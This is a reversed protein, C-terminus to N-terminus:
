LSLRYRVEPVHGWVPETRETGDRTFGADEYFANARDNAVFSWLTAQEYGLDRLEDLAAGLLQRGVGRRWSSPNVFFTRVEGVGPAADPDRNAGCATYGLLEGGDEALLVRIDNSAAVGRFREPDFRPLEIDPPLIDAFGARASETWVASVM